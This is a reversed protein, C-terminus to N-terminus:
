DGLLAEIKARVEGSLQPSFGRYRFVLDGERDFLFATPMARVGFSSAAAGDLDRLVLINPAVRKMYGEVDADAKDVSIAIVKFGRERLEVQWRDYEPLSDRCPPCWTAWFDVLVVEGRFEDVRHLQGNLDPLSVVQDDAPPAPVRATVCSVTLVAISVLLLRM